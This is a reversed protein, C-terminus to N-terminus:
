EEYLTPSSSLLLIVEHVVGDELLSVVRIKILRRRISFFDIRMYVAATRM